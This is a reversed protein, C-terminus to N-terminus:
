IPRLRSPAGPVLGEARRQGQSRRGRCPLHRRGERPRGRGEQAAGSGAALPCLVTRVAADASDMGRVRRVGFKDIFERLARTAQGISFVALRENVGDLRDGGLDTQNVHEVSVEGEGEAEVHWGEVKLTAKEHGSPASAKHETTASIIDVTSSDSSGNEHEVGRAVVLYRPKMRGFVGKLTELHVGHDFGNGHDLLESTAWRKDWMRRASQSLITGVIQATTVGEIRTESKVIPLGGKAKKTLIKGGQIDRIESWDGGGERLETFRSKASELEKATKHDQEILGADLFGAGGGGGRSSSAVSSPRRSRRKSSISGAGIGIGSDADGRVSKARGAQQESPDVGAMAPAGHKQLYDDIKSICVPRRALYKGSIAGPIITKVNVHLQSILRLLPSRPRVVYTAKTSLVGAERVPELVWGNLLINARVRGSVRPIKNSEVSSSCFFIAGNQSGEVKEVLSLDRTSSGVIGKMSM